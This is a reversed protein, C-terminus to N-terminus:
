KHKHQKIILSKGCFYTTNFAMLLNPPTDFFKNIFFISILLTRKMELIDKDLKYSYSYNM